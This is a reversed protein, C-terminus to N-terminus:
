HVDVRARQRRGAAQLRGSNRILLVAILAAALIMLTLMVSLAATRGVDGLEESNLVAVALTQNDFSYLLSSMTVEHLAAVFVLLWAGLLAPGMAPLWVTTGAVPWSAGSVRAAQWEAPPIRDAVASTTRHALASFKAVYALFILLLGSSLWRGYAILLGIAVTSGPIAFALTTLSGLARGARRREVVTVVIGLATLTTAASIGLLVSHGLATMLPQTIAESFNALTWNDPTPPLGVARTIAATGLAITPMGVALLGYAVILLCLVLGIRSRGRGPDEQSGTSGPTRVARLRPSLVLDAPILVVAVLIVLGLALTVSDLFADPNSALTLDSYIRTTLTSFGAPVGLVQPVAFAELTSVFTLLFEAALIPKLLPVTVTRLMAMPTAGSIRAAYELEPQTGTALAATTLLFSLPVADVILVILVGTAGTLGSWHVGFLTDTFGGVGFAQLWSYGLVFQPIILPLVVIVRLGTVGPVRSRRLTLAMASGLPVSILPVLLALALSHEAATLLGPAGLVRVISAWGQQGSVQALKVLPIAVLVILCLAVLFEPLRPRRRDSDASRRM